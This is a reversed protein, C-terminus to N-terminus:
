EENLTWGKAALWQQDFKQDIAYSKLVPALLEGIKRVVQELTLDSNQPVARNIFAKWQIQKTQDNVFERQLGVPLDFPTKRGRQKLTSKIADKLVIAEFNFNNALIWLDFYDKMRSNRIGFLIIADLKEAVVTEPPYASLNASGLTGRLNLRLGQYIEAERIEEIKFSTSDFVIGDEEVKLNCVCDFIERLSKEDLNGFGLLDIDKTPRHEHGLWLM